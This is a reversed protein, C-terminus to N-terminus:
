WTSVKLASERIGAETFATSTDVLMMSMAKNETIKRLSRTVQARATPIMPAKAPTARTVKLRPKATLPPRSRVPQPKESRAATEKAAYVIRPLRRTSRFSGRITVDSANNEPATRRVANEATVM